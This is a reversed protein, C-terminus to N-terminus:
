RPRSRQSASCPARYIRAGDITALLSMGELARRVVPFREPPFRDWHRDGHGSLDVVFRPPTRRLDAELLQWHEESIRERTDLEGRDFADNGALYGTITDIPVVFRTAPRLGAYSYILPSYGWVFLRDADACREARVREGLRRFVPDTVPAVGGAPRFVVLNVALFVAPLGALYAWVWRPRSRSLRELGPVALLSAFFLAPLFYHPWLRGGLFAPGLAALACLVLYQRERTDNWFACVLLPTFTGVVPLVWVVFRRVLDGIPTPQDIHLLNYRWVWFWYGDHGGLAWFVASCALLPLAAGLGTLAARRAAEAWSRGQLLPLCVIAGLMALAPQKGLTALGIAAGSALASLAGPRLALASGLGVLPLMVWESNIAQSDNATMASTMLIVTAGALRRRRDDDFFLAATWACALVLVLGAGLRIWAISPGFLLLFAGYVVHILPPKNDAFTTYLQGDGVLERAGLLHVAEDVNVYDLALMPVRTALALAIWLTWPNGVQFPNM